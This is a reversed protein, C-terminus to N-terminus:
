IKVLDQQAYGKGLPVKLLHDLSKQKKIPFLEQFCYIINLKQMPHVLLVQRVLIKYQLYKVQQHNSLILIPLHSDIKRVNFFSHHHSCEDLIPDKDQFIPYDFIGM